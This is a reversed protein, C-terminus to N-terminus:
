LSTSPKLKRRVIALLLRNYTQFPNTCSLLQSIHTGIASPSLAPAAVETIYKLRNTYNQADRDIIQELTSVESEAVRISAISWDFLQPPVYNNSIIVPVCFSMLSEFLRISCTGYGRPCLSYKSSQLVNNYETRQQAIRKQNDESMNFFDLASTDKISFRESDIKFIEERLVCSNRGWFSCLNTKKKGTYAFDYALNPHLYPVPLVHQSKYRSDTSVYLGPIIYTPRDTEDYILLRSAYKRYYSSGILKIEFRRISTLHKNYVIIFDAEDENNVIKIDDSANLLSSFDSRTSEVWQQNEGFWKVFIRKV